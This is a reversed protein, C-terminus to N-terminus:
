RAHTQRLYIGLYAIEDARNGLHIMCRRLWVSLIRLPFHAAAGYQFCARM